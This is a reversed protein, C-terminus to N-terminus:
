FYKRTKCNLLLANRKDFLYHNNTTAGDIQFKSNTYKTTNCNKSNTGLVKQEMYEEQRHYFSKMLITSTKQKQTEYKQKCTENNQLTNSSPGTNSNRKNTYCMTLVM